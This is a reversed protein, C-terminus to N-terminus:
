SAGRDVVLNDNVGVAGGEFANEVAANHESWNDVTGTLTAQGGDVTVTVEDSDVFPSWWLEDEIEEEIEADRLWSYGPQYDYWDYAYPDQFDYYPDFAYPRYPEVVTLFNRVEEVGAVNAAINDARAKEYYNSVAGTLTAIGDVVLVDIEWSEAVADRALAERINDAVVADSAVVTPRVKIRNEVTTVGVTHRADQEAARKAQLSDVRGRLVVTGDAAAVNVDTSIVRADYLLASEIASEIEGDSVNVNRPDRLDEDRAWRAVELSRVDVDGVGAVWSLALAKRREAASGITGSLQVNGDEVTVDILNANVLANWRLRERVDDAIDRDFRESPYEVDIFNRVETVGIANRAMDEALDREAFSQVSGRLHVVGSDRVEVEVEYPETAPNTLLARKVALETEEATVSPYPDVTLNNVVSRVGKVSEAIRAARQKTQLTNVFGNLTVVGEVTTVDVKVLPVLLDTSIEDEIADTIAQDNLQDPVAGWAAGAVALALVFATFLLLRYQRLPAFAYQVRRM